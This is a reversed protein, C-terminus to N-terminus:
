PCPGLVEYSPCLFAGSQGPFFLHSETYICLMENHTFIGTKLPSPFPLGRFYEQRPFRLSLPAQCSLTWPTSSNLVISCVPECIGKLCGKLERIRVCHEGHPLSMCLFLLRVGYRGVAYRALCHGVQLHFHLVPWHQSTSYLDPFAVHFCGSRFVM